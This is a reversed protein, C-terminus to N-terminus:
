WACIAVNRRWDRFDCGSSLRDRMAEFIKATYDPLTVDFYVQVVVFGILVTILLWDKLRFRKFLKLM